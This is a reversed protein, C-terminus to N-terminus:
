DLIEVTARRGAPSAAGILSRVSRITWGQKGILVGRDRPDVQVEFVRATDDAVERIRVAGPNAVLRKVIFTVLDQV